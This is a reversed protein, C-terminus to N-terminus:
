AGIGVPQASTREVMQQLRQGLENLDRASTELQKASAVNQASSQKTNEMSTALQNVGVLQEQSAAAIQTAALSAEIVSGALAQISERAVETQREGNAVAKAGQETAMVAATTAKQIDSLITRVQNTAQRSQEALSKVEQAVVGFGRGHEGAKAAEIAANVALLNSQSALDDVSAIIQGITQSQESLRVMSAAIAEMQQRIQNMGAAVDETSKRGNESDQAAKHSSDAVVKAKQSAVEATQRVQQVTSTTQIVSAAASAASGALVGASALIQAASTWLDVATGRIQGENQSLEDVMSGIYTDVVIQQDLNRVKILAQIARSLKDQHWRGYHTVLIPVILCMFNSNGGIYWKPALGLREPAVSPPLQMAFFADGYDGRFLALLHELHAAKADALAADDKFLRRTEPFKLLQAYFKRSLRAPM